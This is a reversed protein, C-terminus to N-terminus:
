NDDIDIEELNSILDDGPCIVLVKHKRCPFKIGLETEVGAWAEVDQGYSCIVHIEKVNVFSSVLRLDKLNEEDITEDDDTNGDDDDDDMDWGSRLPRQFRLTTIHSAYPQFYRFPSSGISLMDEKPNIWIYPRQETDQSKTHENKHNTEEGDEKAEGEGELGPKGGDSNLKVKKKEEEEKAGTVILDHFARQYCVTGLHKRAERCVQLPAPVPTSSFFPIVKHEEPFAKLFVATAMDYQADKKSYNVRVEVIRPEVTVEWIRLRVSLPLRTFQSFNSEEKSSSQTSSPPQQGRGRGTGGKGRGRPIGDDPPPIGTDGSHGHLGQFPNFTQSGYCMWWQFKSPM